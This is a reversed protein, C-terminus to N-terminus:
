FPFIGMNIQFRIGTLTAAVETYSDAGSLAAQVAAHYVNTHLRSHYMSSMNMGDFASNIDMNVRALISRSAAARPDNEAVIHHSAEFQTKVASTAAAINKALITSGSSLMAGASAGVLAGGAAGAGVLTPNAMACAGLTYIDCGGAVVAGAVGGLVAGVKVATGGGGGANANSDSPGESVTTFCTLGETAGCSSRGDPDTFLYPNNNAYNYRNFSGGTNANTVVPDVSL